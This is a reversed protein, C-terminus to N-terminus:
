DTRDAKCIFELSDKLMFEVNDDRRCIKSAIECKRSPEKKTGAGLFRGSNWM